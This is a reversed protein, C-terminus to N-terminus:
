FRFVNNIVGINTKEKSIFGPIAIAKELYGALLIAIASIIIYIITAATLSEFTQFTFERMSYAAATLEVLGITLAVSSNKIIAAFENILAPLIIRFAMPLLIYIYSQLPNLGIATAAMKQGTSLAKIGTSFQIAVRASTFFGLALFATVFSSYRSSKIWNGLDDTLIEPIIYYWIFMQMILPINRFLQIYCNAFFVAWKNQITHITGIIVGIILAMMWSSASLLITWKLGIMLTDMYSGIGSPADQWFIGWNWNYHM